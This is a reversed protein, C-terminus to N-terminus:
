RLRRSRTTAAPLTCETIYGIILGSWLGLISSVACYWWMADECGSGMNFTHLLCAKSLCVVVPTMPMTGVVRKTPRDSPRDAPRDTPGAAAAAAAAAAAQDQPVAQLRGQGHRQGGQGCVERGRRPM